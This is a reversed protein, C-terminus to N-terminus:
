DRYYSDFWANSLKALCCVVEVAMVCRTIVLDCTEAMIADNQQQMAFENREGNMMQKERFGGNWPFVM